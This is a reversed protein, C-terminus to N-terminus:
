FFLLVTGSDLRRISIFVRSSWASLALALFRQQFGGKDGRSTQLDGCEGSQGAVMVVQKSLATALFVAHVKVSVVGAGASGV